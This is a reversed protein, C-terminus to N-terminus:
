SKKLIMILTCVAIIIRWSWFLINDLIMCNRDKSTSGIIKLRGRQYIFLSEKKKITM